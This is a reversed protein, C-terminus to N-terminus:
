RREEVEVDMDFFYGVGRETVILKPHSADEELKRRLRLILVDISRDFIEENHLRTASMLQERSLVQRPSSVLAMLLNFEGATLKIDGTDTHTLKRFKVNFEWHGFKFVKREKKSRDEPKVRMSARLRALLERLGFPKGIYDSAGLELGVVKDAESLRDGTIILLPIDSSASFNRVIELGDEYRLNLDVIIADISETAHVRTLSRSDAVATVRFAHQILYDSLMARINPDDDIVVVHKM